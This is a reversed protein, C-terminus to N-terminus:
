VCASSNRWRGGHQFFCSAARVVCCCTVLDVENKKSTCVTLHV